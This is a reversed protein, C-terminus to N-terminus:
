LITEQINKKCSMSHSIKARTEPSVVRGVSSAAIRAKTEESLKRGALTNGIKSRTEPTVIRGLGAIGIKSKTEQKHIHGESGDGADTLNRLIGTGLDKRGYWRIMRRELALSGIDSLNTELFIIRSKHKPVPIRHKQYARVGKGKGIYYPTLDSKRLYAYVYFLYM